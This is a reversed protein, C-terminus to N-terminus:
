RGAVRERPDRERPMGLIREAIQNRIVESTGGAITLCRTYLFDHFVEPEGGLLIDVGGLRMGLETVSQAHEAGILKALNGEVGPEAHSLARAAQRLNLMQLAQSEVLLGGISRLFALDGPRHRALLGVLEDAGISTSGAGISVRENGLTARAVRWGAGVEGVVDDDPVFVDDFFVENFLSEGTLETLPRVEVGPAHMDIVMATIGAHKESDPDTRVTALGRDCIQAQSTWVKQGNVQWGGDVRVAKTSIAAADSGAGPESFLQCWRIEGELSPWMWREVQAPTGHQLLTPLVWEGLGLSPREIGSFEEELALQEAPDAGRGYPAPWHPVMYGARAFTRQREGEPTNRLTELFARAEQRWDGADGPLDLSAPRRAGAEHLEAVAQQLIEPPGVLASLAAARRLYLHADHEWTYGIGGHIQITRQAVRLYGDVACAAAISSSLDAEEPSAAPRAADWTAASALETACLMDACHRKIQQFSGIPRGFQERELSYQVSTELCARMGGVAEAAALVRALRTALQRADPLHGVARSHRCQVQGVPRVPDVARLNTVEAESREVIAMGMGVPLLLLDAEAGCLVAGGAGSVFGGASDLSPEAELSGGLGVAGVMEGSTLQPLWRERQEETGTTMLVGSALVTALVPGPAVVRGLEEIVIVLEELGFGLGGFREDVHLGLWGLSV